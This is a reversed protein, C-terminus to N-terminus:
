LHMTCEFIAQEEVMLPENARWSVMFSALQLTCVLDSEYYESKMCKITHM